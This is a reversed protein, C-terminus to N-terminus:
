ERRLYLLRGCTARSSGGMLHVRPQHERSCEALSRQETEGDKEGPAQPPTRRYGVVAWRGHGHKEWSGPSGQHWPGPKRGGEHGPTCVRWLGCM